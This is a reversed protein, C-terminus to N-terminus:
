VYIEGKNYAPERIRSYEPRFDLTLKGICGDRNKAIQIEMKEPPEGGQRMESKLKMRNEWYVLLILNSVEEIRGSDRLDTIKPPRITLKERSLQSLVITSIETDLTMGQLDRINGTVREYDSRAGRRDLNQLYDVFVIEPNYKRIYKGIDRTDFIKKINLNWHEGVLDAINNLADKDKSEFLGKRFDMINFPMLNALIRRATELPTMESTLYLVKKYEDVDIFDIALQIALSTKGQSTFGGITMLEGKDIGGLYHNLAAIKFRHAVGKSSMVLTNKLLTKLTEEKIEVIPVKTILELAEPIKVNEMKLDQLIEKIRSQSSHKKVISNYHDINVVTPVSNVLTTLYTVGGCDALIGSKQLKETVTVIDVAVNEEILTRICQFIKKHKNVSFDAVELSEFTKNLAEVNILCSGLSAQEASTDLIRKKMAESM